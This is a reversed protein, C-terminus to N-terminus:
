ERSSPSIAPARAYLAQLTGPDASRGLALRAAALAVAAEFRICGAEILRPIQPPTGRFIAFQADAVIALAEDISADIPAELLPEVDDASVSHLGAFVRGQGAELLVAVRGVHGSALALARTSEIGLAPVSTGLALGSATALGVRLGTFSGPGRVVALGGLDRPRLGARGLIDQIIDHLVVGAREMSTVELPQAGAGLLAVSIPLQVTDLALIPQTLFTAM